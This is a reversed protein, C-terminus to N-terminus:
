FHFTNQNENRNNSQSRYTNRLRRFGPASLLAWRFVQTTRLQPKLRSM